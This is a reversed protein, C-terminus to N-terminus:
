VMAESRLLREANELMLKAKLEKDKRERERDLVAQKKAEEFRQQGDKMAQSLDKWRSRLNQDNGPMETVKGTLLGAIVGADQPAPLHKDAHKQTIRFFDTSDLGAM